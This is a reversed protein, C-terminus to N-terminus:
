PFKPIFILVLTSINVKLVKQALTKSGLNQHALIETVTNLYLFFLNQLNPKYTLALNYKLCGPRNITGAVQATSVSNPLRVAAVFCLFDRVNITM